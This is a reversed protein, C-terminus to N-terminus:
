EGEPVGQAPPSDVVKNKTLYGAAFTVIVIIAAEVFGPIQDNWYKDDAWSLISAVAAWFTAAQVKETPNNSLQSVKVKNVNPM